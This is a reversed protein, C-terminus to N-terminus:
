LKKKEKQDDNTVLVDSKRVYCLITKLNNVDTEYWANWRVIAQIIAVSNSILNKEFVNKHNQVIFSVNYKDIDPEM